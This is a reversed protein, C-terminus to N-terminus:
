PAWSRGHPGDDRGVIDEITVIRDFYGGTAVAPEVGAASVLVRHITTRPRVELAQLRRAYERAVTLGVPMTTYKIECVTLVSDAREFVLDFQFGGPENREIWAGSRYRVGSFGLIEAIRHHQSRCWREFAFGLWQQYEHLPLAQTPRDLFTGSEVARRQRALFRHYFHLYPDAIQYRVLKTGPERDYPIVGEIFGCLELDDMLASLTGGPKLRLHGAIEARSANHRTALFGLIKRYHENKALSSVFIREYEQLLRSNPLFANRCLALYTSSEDRALKLYEPIGGLALQAEMIEFASRGEGIFEATDRLPFPQLHIEKFVRGYLAKSRLVRGVMFSPASGCLVVVLKPNRRLTNDWAHKLESIFGEQYAAIWQLEEFYLTWVGRDIFRGLYDLFETWRTFQLKEISSDNAYRALQYLAHEMQRKADGGELGEFKLLNRERYTQEVLETKGVRRRGYVAVISAEPRSNVELLAASETLRGLFGQNQLVNYPLLM